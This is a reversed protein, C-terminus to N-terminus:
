GCARDEACADQVVLPACIGVRAKEALDVIAGVVHADESVDLAELAVTLRAPNRLRAHGGGEGLVSVEGIEGRKAIALRQRRASAVALEGGEEGEGRGAGRDGSSPM